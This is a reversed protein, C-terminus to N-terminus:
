SGTQVTPCPESSNSEAAPARTQNTLISEALLYTVNAEEDDEAEEEDETSIASESSSDESGNIEHQSSPDSKKKENTVFLSPDMAFALVAHLSDRCTLAEASIWESCGRSSSISGILYNYDNGLMTSIRYRNRNTTTNETTDVDADSKDLANDADDIFRHWPDILDVGEECDYSSETKLSILSFYIPNVILNQDTTVKSLCPRVTSKQIEIRYAAECSSATSTSTSETLHIDLTMLPICAIPSKFTVDKKQGPVRDLSIPLLAMRLGCHFRRGFRLQQRDELMQLLGRWPHLRIAVGSFIDNMRQSVEDVVDATRLELAECHAVHDELECSFGRWDCGLWAYKCGVPRRGCLVRQHVDILKRPCLAECHRCRVPLEAALKEALLCRQMGRGDGSNRLSVRCVPCSCSAKGDSTTFSVQELRSCCPICILHGNACQNAQKAFDFCVNCTLLQRLSLLPALNSGSEVNRELEDPPSLLARKAAPQESVTSSQEAFHAASCNNVNPKLDKPESSFSSQFTRKLSRWLRM